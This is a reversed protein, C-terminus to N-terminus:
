KRVPANTGAPKDAARILALYKAPEKLFDKKCGSCCLKVEQGEYVFRYPEGMADLKDGSVPCTTLLDPKAKTKGPKVPKAKGAAPSNTGAVVQTATANATTMTNTPEAALAGAVGLLGTLTLMRGARLYNWKMNKLSLSHPWAADRFSL